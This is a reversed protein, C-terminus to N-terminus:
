PLPLPPVQFAKLFITLCLFSPLLSTRMRYSCCCSGYPGGACKRWARQNHADHLVQWTTAAYVAYM